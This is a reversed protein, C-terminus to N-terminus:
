APLPRCYRRDAPDKILERCIRYYRSMHRGLTGYRDRVIERYYQETIEAIRRDYEAEIEQLTM